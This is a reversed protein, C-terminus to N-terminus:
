HKFEAESESVLVVDCGDGVVDEGPLEGEWKEWMVMMKGSFTGRVQLSSASNRVRWWARGGGRMRAMSVPPQGCAATRSSM